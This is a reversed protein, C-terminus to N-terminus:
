RIATEAPTVDDARQGHEPLGLVIRGVCLVRVECFDNTGQSCFPVDGCVLGLEELSHHEVDQHGVVVVM